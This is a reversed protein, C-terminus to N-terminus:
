GPPPPLVAAEAAVVGSGSQQADAAVQSTLGLDVGATGPPIVGGSRQMALRLTAVEAATLGSAYRCADPAGLM